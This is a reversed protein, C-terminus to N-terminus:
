GRVENVFFYLGTKTTTTTKTTEVEKRFELSEHYSLYSQTKRIEIDEVSYFTKSTSNIIAAMDLTNVRDQASDQASLM